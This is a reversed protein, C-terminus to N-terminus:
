TEEDAKANQGLLVGCRFMELSVEKCIADMENLIDDLDSDEQIVGPTESDCLGLRFCIRNYANRVRDYHQHCEGKPGFRNIVGPVRFPKTAEGIATYYVQEAFSDFGGHKEM